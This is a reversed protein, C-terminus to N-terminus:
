AVTAIMLAKATHMRNEAQDFVRSMPSEFVEDSVEHLDPHRRGLETQDDHLAPLCHLYIVDDRGTRGILEETVKFPSLAAVREEILAEEGMSVWIDGYVVQAGSIAEDIDDTVVVSCDPVDILERLESSSPQLSSPALIRLDLGMRAAAIVLTRAQNNRGDGVYCVSTGQLRGFTERITMLDALLQTPHYLDCLGNWVPIGATDALTRVLAHEYGRFVLGDFMRGIVRAVDRPSEKIGFRIEEHGFIELHAGEDSAAVVFSMRTRCSPKLFVLAINRHALRQPFVRQRKEDKVADALDLLHDIEDTALDGLTLLSRGKLSEM